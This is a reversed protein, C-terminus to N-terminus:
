LKMGNTKFLFRAHYSLTKIRDLRRVSSSIRGLENMLCLLVVELNQTM